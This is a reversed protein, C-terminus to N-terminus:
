GAHVGDAFRAAQPGTWVLEPSAGRLARRQLAEGDLPAHAALLVVNGGIRGRLVKRAAVVGLHAFAGGLVGALARARPLPPEDIVNAAFVGGPRLVRAAHAAAEPGTLHAPVETGVFADLVLLDVSADSRRALLVGGDAIRVKLHRDTRLGLQARALAVLESDIEAVVQHSGPRTHAVYRPLTFGGGGVHLATIPARPPALADAVDALRRVYAFEVRGPDRLDVHSCDEGDLRLLRRWPRGPEPVVEGAARRTGADAM